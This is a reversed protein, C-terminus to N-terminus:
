DPDFNLGSFAGIQTSFNWPIREFQQTLVFSVSDVPAHTHTYIYHTLTHAIMGGMRMGNWIVKGFCVLMCVMYVGIVVGNVVGVYVGVCVCLGAVM